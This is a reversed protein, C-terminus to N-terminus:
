ERQYKIMFEKLAATILDKNNIFKNNKCFENWEENIKSDVVVSRTITEDICCGAVMRIDNNCNSKLIQYDKIIEKISLIENNTLTSNKDEKIFKKVSAVYFVGREDMRKVVWSYSFGFQKSIGETNGEKSLANNLLNIQECVELKLFEEKSIKKNM